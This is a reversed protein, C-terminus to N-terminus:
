WTEYHVASDRFRTRPRPTEAPWGIAIASIPIIGEPVHLLSRIHAVREDRPHVGLWCAGLGLTSAALLLNEIAASCDQLLYSLQGDHARQIDGCIVIGVPADALM